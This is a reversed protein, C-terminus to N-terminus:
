RQCLILFLVLKTKTSVQNNGGGDGRECTIFLSFTLTRRFRSRIRCNSVPSVFVILAIVEDARRPFSRSLPRSLRPRTNRGLRTCYCHKQKIPTVQRPRPLVDIATHHEAIANAVADNAIIGGSLQNQRPNSAQKCAIKATYNQHRQVTLLHSGSYQETPQRNRGQIESCKTSKM